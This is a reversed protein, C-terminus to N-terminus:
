RAYYPWFNLFITGFLLVIVFCIGVAALGTKMMYEPKVGYSVPLARTSTPLIFACNAAVSTLYIYPIPNLNLATTISIVIPISIACAANNSSVNSLIMGLAIFIATLLIGGSIGTNSVLEAVMDSAGSKTICTGLALGGALTYFLGWSMRPSAYKWTLLRGNVPGPLVFCLIGFVIFVYSSTLAPVLDAFLPRAFALVVSVLFVTLSVKEDRSMKGLKQYEEKFYERAGPLAKVESKMFCMYLTVGLTILVLMPMMKGVWDIYRYEVGTLEQIYNISVLNMGGGLPSGFGGLGSGWAVALLINAAARSKGIDAHGVNTLMAVAIPTLAAAVVVNPLFISMVTSGVFWVVIQQKMSPGILSLAGLAIRKNLGTAEWSITIMNAGILLIVLDAAYQPIITSLPVFGFIANTVIPLFATVAVDVPTFIWWASMWLFTGLAGKVAFPMASGPILLVALLFLVPGSLLKALKKM